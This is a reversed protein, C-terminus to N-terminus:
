NRVKFSLKVSPISRENLDIETQINSTIAKPVISFSLFVVHVSLSLSNYYNTNLTFLFHVLHSFNIDYM